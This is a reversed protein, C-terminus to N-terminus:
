IIETLTTPVVFLSFFHRVKQYGEEINLKSNLLKRINARTKLFWENQLGVWPVGNPIVRLRTARLHLIYIIIPLAAFLYVKLGVLAGSLKQFPGKDPLGPVAPMNAM